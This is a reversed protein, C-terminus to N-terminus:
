AEKEKQKGVDDKGRKLIVFLQINEIRCTRVNWLAFHGAIL